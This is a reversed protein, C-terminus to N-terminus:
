ASTGDQRSEGALEQPFPRAAGKVSAAVSYELMLYTVLYQRCYEILTSRKKKNKHGDAGSKNVNSM